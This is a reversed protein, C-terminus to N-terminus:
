PTPIVPTWSPSPRRPMSPIPTSPTIAGSRPITTSTQSRKAEKHLPAGAALKFNKDVWASESMETIYHEVVTNAYIAGVKGAHFMDRDEYNTILYFEPDIRSAEAAMSAYRSVLDDPLPLVGPDVPSAPPKM